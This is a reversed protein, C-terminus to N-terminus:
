GVGGADMDSCEVDWWYGSWLWGSEVTVVAQVGRGLGGSMVVISLRATRRGGFARRFMKWAVVRRWFGVVM